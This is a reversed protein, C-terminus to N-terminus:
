ILINMLQFFIFIFIIVIIYRERCASNHPPCEITLMNFLLHFSDTRILETIATRHECLRGLLNVLRDEPRAKKQQQEIL